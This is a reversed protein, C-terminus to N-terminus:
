LLTRSEVEDFYFRTAEVINAFLRSSHTRELTHLEIPSVVAKELRRLDNQELIHGLPLDTYIWAAHAASRGQRLIQQMEDVIKRGSTQQRHLIEGAFIPGLGAVRSILWAVSNSQPLEGLEITKGSLIDELDIKAGSSPFAYADFEGIGHQPTIPSFSSLVRREIDLLIINPANPILEIVLSMTELEKSPVTTKFAFEVIRESLPKRFELLEASTLHKRLVMLFDSGPSELPVRAESAYVAPAQAHMVVKLAPLKASRTQFIFGNAQHQVVRRIILEGMASKLNEALAVLALNEM